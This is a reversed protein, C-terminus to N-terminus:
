DRLKRIVTAGEAGKNGLVVEVFTPSYTGRAFFAPM